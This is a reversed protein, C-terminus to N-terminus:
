EYICIICAIRKEKLLYFISIISKITFQPLSHLLPAFSTQSRGSSQAVTLLSPLPQGNPFQPVAAGPPCAIASPSGGM